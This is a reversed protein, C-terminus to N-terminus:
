ALDPSRRRGAQRRLQVVNSASAVEQPAEPKVSIVHSGLMRDIYGHDLDLLSEIDTHSFPLNSLMILMSGRSSEGLMRFAQRVLMPEECVLKDDLPECKRYGNRSYNKWMNLMTTEPWFGLAEIRMLMAGISMKWKRKLTLLGSLSAVAVDDGFGRAPLMFAGAFAHAEKEITPFTKGARLQNQKVQRHLVLHGLEHAADFRSRAASPKDTGLIIVPRNVLSSWYGFSDLHYSDLAQRSVLVGKSELLYVLDPVPGDGLGFHERLATAASEIEDQTLQGPEQDGSHSPIDVQPLAVHRELYHVIEEYWRAKHEARKRATQTAASMSRYFVPVEDVVPRGSCLFFGEPLNLTRAIAEFTDPQPSMRDNEYGSILSANKQGLLEALMGQTLGRAERAERLRSGVFGPTRKRM